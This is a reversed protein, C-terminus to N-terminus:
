RKEIAVSSDSAYIKPLFEHRLKLFSVGGDAGDFMDLMPALDTKIENDISM